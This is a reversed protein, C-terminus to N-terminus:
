MKRVVSQVGKLSKVVDMVEKLQEVGTVDLTFYDAATDDIRTIDSAKFNGERINVHSKAIATTIEGLM